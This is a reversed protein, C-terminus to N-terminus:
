HSENSLEQRVALPLDLRPSGQQHFSVCTCLVCSELSADGVYERSEARQKGSEERWMSISQLSSSLSLRHSQLYM